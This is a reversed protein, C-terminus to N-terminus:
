RLLFKSATQSASSRTQVLMKGSSRVRVPENSWRVRVDCGLPERLRSAIQELILAPPPLRPRVRLEIEDTAHQVFQTEWYGARYLDEQFEGLLARLPVYRGAADRWVTSVRGEVSQLGPLGPQLGCPCAAEAPVAVDGVAYRILPMALNHLSTLVVRGMAGPRAREGNQDIIEVITHEPNLHLTGHPCQHAMSGVETCGYESLVPCAFGDRISREVFPTLVDCASVALRVGLRRLDIGARRAFHRMRHMMWPQGVLYHPRSLRFWRITDMIESPEFRFSWNRCRGTIPDTLLRVFKQVTSLRVAGPIGHREWPRVGFRAMARARM